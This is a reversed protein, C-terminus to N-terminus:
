NIQQKLEEIIKKLEEVEKELSSVRKPLEWFSFQKIKDNM